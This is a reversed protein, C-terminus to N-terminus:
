RPQMSPYGWLLPTQAWQPRPSEGRHWTDRGSRDVLFRFRNGVIDECFFAALPAEVMGQDSPMIALLFTPSAGPDGPECVLSRVEGNTAVASVQGHWWRTVDKPDFAVYHCRLAPGRGFNM